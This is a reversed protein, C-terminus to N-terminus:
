RTAAELLRRAVPSGPDLELAAAAERAAGEPDGRQLLVAGLNIRAPALDPALEVARRLRREAGPLDGRMALEGGLNVLVRVSDPSAREARSFLTFDDRWASASWASWGAGALLLAGIAARMRLREALLLAFGASPLYLLREGFATGIALVLNSVLFWPALLIALPVLSPARRRAAFALALLAAIALGAGALSAASVGPVTHAFGYDPVLPHPWVVLKAGRAVTGLATALREFGSAAVVPNEYRTVPGASAAMSGLVLTRAVLYAVIVGTVAALRAAARPRRAPLWELAVAPALFTVATEKSLLAAGLLTAVAIGTRAGDRWRAYAALAALFFLAHLSETRNSVNAVVEVHVPHVAFLAGAAFAKGPSLGLALAALFLAASAAAHLAINTAHWSAPDDGALAHNLAFTATTLPRWAGTEVRVDAGVHFPRTVIEGFRHGSVLPNAVNMADDYTFAHGLTGLFPAVALLVVAALLRVNPM